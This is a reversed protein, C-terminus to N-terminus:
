VVDVDFFSSDEKSGKGEQFQRRSGDSSATTDFVILGDRRLKNIPM